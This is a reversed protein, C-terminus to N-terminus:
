IKEDIFVEFNDKVFGGSVGSDLPENIKGKSTTLRFNLSEKNFAKRWANFSTKIWTGHEDLIDTKKVTDKLHHWLNGNYKFKKTGRDKLQKYSFGQYEGGLLFFEVAKIPFAYLGKRAPPEHFTTPIVNYGKQNVLNLGGFRIFYENSLKSELIKNLKIMIRKDVMNSLPAM